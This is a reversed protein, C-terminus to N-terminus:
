SLGKGKEVFNFLYNHIVECNCNSDALRTFKGCEYSHIWTKAERIHYKRPM